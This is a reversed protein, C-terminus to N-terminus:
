KLATRLWRPLRRVRAEPTTTGSQAVLEVYAHWVRIQVAERRQPLLLGTTQLAFSHEGVHHPRLQLELEDDLGLTHLYVAETRVAPFGIGTELHSSLPRGLAALWDTFMVEAWRFVAGYYILQAADTDALRVRSSRVLMPVRSAEADALHESTM